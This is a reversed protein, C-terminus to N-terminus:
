QAMMNETKLPKIKGLLKFCVVLLVAFVVCLIAVPALAKGCVAQYFADVYNSCFNIVAHLLMCLWINHYKKYIYGLVLALLFAYTGQVLNAHIIGFALAQICNIIWFKVSVKEALRMIIGRCLLEEGIPAMIVTSVFAMVTMETFGANEMLQLYSEFMKPFTEMLIGLIGSVLFQLLVGMFVIIVIGKVGAKEANVPRKKKGYAFYYWLGFVLIGIIHYLAVVAIANDMYQEMAMQMMAESTLNGDANQFGVMVAMVFMVVMGIGLQMALSLAAPSLAVFFWGLKGWISKKM